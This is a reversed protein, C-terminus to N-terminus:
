DMKQVTVVTRDMWCVNVRRRFEDNELKLLYCTRGKQKEVEQVAVRDFKFLAYPMEEDNFGHAKAAKSISRTQEIKEMFARMEPSVQIDGGCATLSVLAMNMLLFFPRTM